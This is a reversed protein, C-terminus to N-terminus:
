VPLVQTVPSFEPGSDKTKFLLVSRTPAGEGNINVLAGTPQEVDANVTATAVTVQGQSGADVWLLESSLTFGQEKASAAWPILGPGVHPLRDGGYHEWHNHM